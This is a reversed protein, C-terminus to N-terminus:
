RNVHAIADGLSRVGGVQERSKFPAPPLCVIRSAIREPTNGGRRECEMWAGM